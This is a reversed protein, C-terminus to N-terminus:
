LDAWEIAKKEAYSNCIEELLKEMEKEQETKHNPNITKILGTISEEILNAIMGSVLM